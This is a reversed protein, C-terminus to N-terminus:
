SIRTAKLNFSNNELSISVNRDKRSFSVKLFLSISFLNESTSHVFSQSLTCRTNITRPIINEYSRLITSESIIDIKDNSIISLGNTCELIMYFEILWSGHCPIILECLKEHHCNSILLISSVASIEFGINHSNYVPFFTNVIELPKKFTNIGTFTNNSGFFKRVKRYIEDEM